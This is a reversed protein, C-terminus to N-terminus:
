GFNIGSPSWIILLVDIVIAEKEMQVEGDSLNPLPQLRLQNTLTLQTLLVPLVTM